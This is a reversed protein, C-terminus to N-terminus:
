GIKIQHVIRLKGIFVAVTKQIGANAPIVTISKIPFALPSTTKDM